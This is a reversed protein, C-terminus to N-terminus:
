AQRGTSTVGVRGEQVMSNNDRKKAMEQFINQIKRSSSGLEFEEKM